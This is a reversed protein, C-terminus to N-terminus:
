NNDELILVKDAMFQTEDEDVDLIKQLKPILANEYGDISKKLAAVRDHLNNVVIYAGVMLKAYETKTLTGDFDEASLKDNLKGFDDRMVLATKEGQEDNNNRDYEAVQEAMIEATHSLEKFLDLYAKEM